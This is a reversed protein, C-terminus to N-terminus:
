IGFSYNYLPIWCYSAMSRILFGGCCPILTAIYGWCMWFEKDLFLKDSIYKDLIEIADQRRVVDTDFIHKVVSPEPAGWMRRTYFMTSINTHHRWLIWWKFRCLKMLLRTLGAWIDNRVEYTCSVCISVCVCVRACLSSFVFYVFLMCLRLGYLSLLLLNVTFLIYM